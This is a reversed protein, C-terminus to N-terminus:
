TVNEEKLSQLKRPDLKSAKVITNGVWRKGEAFVSDRDSAERYTQDYTGCVDTILWDMFDKQLHPPCDGRILAQVAGAHHAKVEVPFSASEYKKV